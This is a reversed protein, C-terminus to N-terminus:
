LCRMLIKLFSQELRLGATILVLERAHHKDEANDKWGTTSQRCRSRVALRVMWCDLAGGNMLIRMWCNPLGRGSSNKLGRYSELSTCFSLSLCTLTQDKM